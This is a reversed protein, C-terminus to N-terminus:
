SPVMGHRRKFDAGSRRNHNAHTAKHTNKNKRNVLVDKEQGQGRPKGVVNRNKASQAAQRREEAKARLIAPDQIFHDKGNQEKYNEVTVEDEGESESMEENKSRLVRPITFPRSDIEVTDDQVFGRVDQTDYTDDYEDNYDDSVLSYKNYIDSLKKIDTKDNLLDNVNKYKDQKKGIHIKSLDINDRTMIDFEDNDFVNLRERGIAADVAASTAMPDPPISLMSTDLLKQLHPPLTKELVANIVDETNFKYHQLCKEIFGNNLSPLIDTVGTILSNLEVSEKIISKQAHNEIIGDVLTECNQIGSLEDISRLENVSFNNTSKSNKANFDKITAAISSLIYDCKMQDIEPCIELLVQIDMDVPYFHNYDNIFETESIANTLLELFDNIHMKLGEEVLPDRKKEIIKIPHYIIVRYLQLIEVRTVDLLHKLEIYMPMSEDTSALEHLKKYMKPVVADYISVMKNLFSEQHFIQIAPPYISLFIGLTSFIDLVFLLMDKLTSLTMQSSNTRNALVSVPNGESITNVQFAQEVNCLAEIICPVSRKLDNCYLPQLTFLSQLIKEITKGNERGYLQCLDFIIPVTFIFNNYLLNGLYEKEMYEKQGEKNTIFRAFVILVKKKLTEVLEIMEPVNPFHELDYFPSFEQLFSILTDFASNNYLINSWFKHFPLSLLWNLDDIMFKIIEIWREKAGPIELGNEDYIGPIEYHLFYREEVWYESLAPVTIKKNEEEVILELEEIPKFEPNEICEM